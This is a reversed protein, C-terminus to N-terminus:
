QGQQKRGLDLSGAKGEKMARKVARQWDGIIAQDAPTGDPLLSMSGLLCGIEDSHTRQYLDELFFFTAAYAEDATM